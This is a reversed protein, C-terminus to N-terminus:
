SVLVGKKKRSKYSIQTRKVLRPSLLKMVDLILSDVRDANFLLCQIEDDRFFDLDGDQNGIIVSATRDILWDLMVQKLLGTRTALNSHALHCSGLSDLNNLLPLDYFADIHAGDVALFAQLFFNEDEHISYDSAVESKHTVVFVLAGCDNGAKVLRTVGQTLKFDEANPPNIDCHNLWKGRFLFLAPRVRLDPLMNRAEILTEPIGIDIFYGKLRVGALLGNRALIPFVEKEISCPGNPIFDIIQRSLLCMGANILDMNNDLGSQKEHFGTIYGVEFSVRGYRSADQVEHLAMVGLIGDRANALALDLLRINVDFFSDGNAFLFLPALYDKAHRLAGGTGSPEVEVIVRLQAGRKVTGNYRNVFQDAMHGALLIIDDFGHRAILEILDDLFVTNFDIPLLPKPVRQTYVGLRTGRGGVLIVAQRVHSILNGAAM